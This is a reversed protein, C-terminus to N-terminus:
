RGDSRPQLRPESRLRVRALTIVVTVGSAWYMGLGVAVGVAAVIWMTAATTLGRVSLGERQISGAGLFGLLHTRLGASCTSRGPPGRRTAGVTVSAGANRARMCQKYPTPSPIVSCRMSIGSPGTVMM